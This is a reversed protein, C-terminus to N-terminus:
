PNNSSSCQFGRSERSCYTQRTHNTIGNGLRSSRRRLNRSHRNCIWFTLSLFAAAVSVTGGSRLKPICVKRYAWNTWGNFGGDMPHSLTYIGSISMVGKVFHLPVQAAELFQSDLAVLSVLHGGASHGSIFFRGVDGGYTSVNRYAWAIASHTLFLHFDPVASRDAAEM